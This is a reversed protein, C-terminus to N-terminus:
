FHNTCCLVALCLLRYMKLYLTTNTYTQYLSKSTGMGNLNYRKDLMKRISNSLLASPLIHSHCKRKQKAILSFKNKKIIWELIYCGSKLKIHQNYHISVMGWNMINAGMWVRATLVTSLHCFICNVFFCLIQQYYERTPSVQQSIPWYCTHSFIRM